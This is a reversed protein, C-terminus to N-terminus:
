RPGGTKFEKDMKKAAEKSGQTWCWWYSSDGLVIVIEGCSVLANALSQTVLYWRDPVAPRSDLLLAEAEEIWADLEDVADVPDKNGALTHDETIAELLTAKAEIADELEKKSVTNGDPDRFSGKDRLAADLAVLDMVPEELLNERTVHIMTKMVFTQEALLHNRWNLVEGSM